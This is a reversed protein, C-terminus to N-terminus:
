NTLNAALRKFLVCTCVDVDESEQKEEVVVDIEEEVVVSPGSDEEADDYSEDGLYGSVDAQDTAREELELRDGPLKPKNHIIRWIREEEEQEKRAREEQKRDFERMWLKRPNRKGLKKNVFSERPIYPYKAMIDEIDDKNNEMEEQYSLYNEEDTMPDYLGQREHWDIVAAEESPTPEFEAEEPTGRANIRRWFDLDPNASEPNDSEVDVIPRTNDTTFVPEEMKEEESSSEQRYKLNSYRSFVENGAACM